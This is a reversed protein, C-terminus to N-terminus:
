EQNYNRGFRLNNFKGTTSEVRPHRPEAKPATEEATGVLSELSQSIEDAVAEATETSPLPATNRRPPLDAVRNAQKIREMANLCSRLDEQLEEIKKCAARKADEVRANEAAIVADANKANEAAAANANKLMADCKAEAEKVMKDCTRQANVVAEKMSEENKRYEELKAVLARMKSKLLANEKFLTVYDEFMPELFADVGKMDYGGFTAKDFAVQELDQPTLM